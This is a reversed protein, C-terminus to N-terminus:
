VMVQRGDATHTPLIHFALLLFPIQVVDSMPALAAPV